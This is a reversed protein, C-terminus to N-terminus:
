QFKVHVLVFPFEGESSMLTKMSSWSSYEDSAMAVIEWWIVILIQSFCLFCHVKAWSGKINEYHLLQAASVSHSECFHQFM